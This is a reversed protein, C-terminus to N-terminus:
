NLVWNGSLGTNLDTLVWVLADMRDPSTMGPVWTTMQEELKPFIGIHHVRGQEYLSSIPEARTAKGRSAHVAHIPLTPRITQLTSIVMEGGNNTEPVVRDAKHDDYAQIAAGGWTRPSGRLSYDDLVYFEDDSGRGAAIIGTEASDADSSAAPDVGVAVRVLTVGDPLAPLRADEIMALTWLAGEVDELLQGALEQQGLRTSEYKRRYSALTAPDLNDANEYTTGTRMIADAPLDLQDKTRQVLERVLANPKPTFTVVVRAREGNPGRRRLGFDANTFADRHKWAGFEDWWELDAEPGRLRDPEDASRTWAEVGNPFTIRMKSPEYHARWGLRESVKIIGSPGEVVIDRVDSATSAVLGIRATRGAKAEACIYEAGTRSKGFGRGAMLLWFRWDGDPPQQSPRGIDSWPKVTAQLRARYPRTERIIRARAGIFAEITAPTASM